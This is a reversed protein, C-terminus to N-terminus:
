VWINFSLSPIRVEARILFSFVAYQTSNFRITTCVLCSVLSPEIFRVSHGLLAKIELPYGVHHLLLTLSACKIFQLWELCDHGRSIFEDTFNWLMSVTETFLPEFFRKLWISGIM